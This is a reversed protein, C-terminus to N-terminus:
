AKKCIMINFQGESDIGEVDEKMKTINEEIGQKLDGLKFNETKKLEYQVLDNLDLQDSFSSDLSVKSKSRSEQGTKKRNLQDEM